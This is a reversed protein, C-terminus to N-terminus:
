RLYVPWDVTSTTEGGDKRLVKGYFRILCKAEEYPSITGVAHTIRCKRGVFSHASNPIVVIDGAKHEGHELGLAKRAQKLQGEAERVADEAERIAAIHEPITKM